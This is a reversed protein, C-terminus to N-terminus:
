VAAKIFPILYMAGVGVSFVLSHLMWNDTDKFQPLLDTGAIYVFNGVVLPLLLQVTSTSVQNIGLVLGAGLFMFVSVGINV